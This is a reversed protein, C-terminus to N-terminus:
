LCSSIYVITHFCLLPFNALLYIDCKFIYDNLMVICSAAVIGVYEKGKGIVHQILPQRQDDIRNNAVISLNVTPPAPSGDIRYLAYGNTRITTVQYITQEPHYYGVVDGSQFDIRDNGTLVINVNCYRDSNCQSVQSEQLQVEGINTYVMSDTSSPRWVQFYPYDNGDMNNDRRVRAIIRTIRGNCTFSLAPVIGLRDRDIEDDGDQQIDVLDTCVSGVLHLKFCNYLM